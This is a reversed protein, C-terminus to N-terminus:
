QWTTAMTALYLSRLIQYRLVRKCTLINPLFKGDVLLSETRRSSQCEYVKPLFIPKNYIPVLTFLKSKMRFQNQVFGTANLVMINQGPTIRGPEMKALTLAGTNEEQVSTKFTALCVKDHGLGWIIGRAPNQLPIVNRMAISLSNYESETTSTAIDAHLKSTWIVPCDMGVRWVLPITLTRTVECAPLTPMLM